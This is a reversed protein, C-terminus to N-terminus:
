KVLKLDAAKATGEGVDVDASAEKYGAAWVTVKYKGPNVPRAIGVLENPIASGNLKVVLSSLGTAAPAVQIRLTPIRPKISALEKRGSEHAQRFADPGDKAVPTRVLTEYTESAEVLKGTAAQCQAIHLLHTPASFLKQATELRTLAEPCSGNEQLKIGEMYAARATAKRESESMDLPPATASSAASTAPTAATAVGIPIGSASAAAMAEPSAAKLTAMYRTQVDYWAGSVGDIILPICFTFPCTVIDLILWGPNLSRKVPLPEDEYGPKSVILQSVKGRDVEVEAPTVGLKVVGRKTEAGNPNSEVHVTEKSSRFVAACGILSFSLAFATFVGIRM